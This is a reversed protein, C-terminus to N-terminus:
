SEDYSRRNELQDSGNLAPLSSSLSALSSVLRDGGSGWLRGGRSRPSTEVFPRKYRVLKGAM